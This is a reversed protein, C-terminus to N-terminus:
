AQEIAAPPCAIEVINGDPDYVASEYFGDGTMRPLKELQYGDNQLVRTLSDVEEKSNAAFALHTYGTIRTTVDSPRPEVDPVQMIELNAGECFTLLYSAFRKEPNVYKRGARGGFYKEYFDKLEELRKTWLAVHEIKVV